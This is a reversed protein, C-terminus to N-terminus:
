NWNDIKLDRPSPKGVGTEVLARLSLLFVAWKLSCHSMFEVDERWNRHSFLVITHDGETKLDFVVDTGVWEPPGEKCTWRVHQDLAQAAVQFIMSGKVDGGPDKFKLQLEGNLAASGTADETWWGCVGALTTLALYTRDIPAKVGLRHAIHFM